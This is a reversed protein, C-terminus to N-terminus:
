WYHKNELIRDLEVKSRVDQIDNYKEPLDIYSLLFRDKMDFTAKEVGRKGAEDNDLCLVVESPALSSVLDTQYRSIIAGLISLAQYGNQHMWVADLAGETIYLTESNNIHNVGFLCLSKKFGKSYIYKPQQTLRRKIWGITKSSENEVPIVLDGFLNQKFNWNGLISKNFDRDYIWHDDSLDYLVYPSEIEDNLIVTETTDPFFSFDSNVSYPALEKNIDEWNKGTLLKIFLSLSGSGCGAFCIWVGKDLNISCSSVNDIHFPCKISYEDDLSTEIDYEELVERWEM